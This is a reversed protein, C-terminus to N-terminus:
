CLHEWNSMMFVSIIKGIVFQLICCEFADYYYLYQDMRALPFVSNDNQEKQIFYYKLAMTVQLPLSYVSLFPLSSNNSLDKLCCICVFRDRRSIIDVM